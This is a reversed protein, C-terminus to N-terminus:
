VHARGIEPNDHINGIVEYKRWTDAMDTYKGKYDGSIIKYVFGVRWDLWKCVAITGAHIPNDSFRVIDGEYIEQGGKDKLGTHQGVTAPDVEHFRESVLREIGCEAHTYFMQDCAIFRRQNEYHCCLDGYVWEGNSLRKGRFKIERM